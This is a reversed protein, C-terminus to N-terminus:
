LFFIALLDRAGEIFTGGFLFPFTYRVQRLAESLWGEIFTGGFLFPFENYKTKTSM